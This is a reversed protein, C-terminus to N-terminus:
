RFRMKRMKRKRKLKAECVWEIPIRKKRDGYKRRQGKPRQNVTLVVKRKGTVRVVEGRHGFRGGKMNKALLAEFPVTWGVICGMLEEPKINM